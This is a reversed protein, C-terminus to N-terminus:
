KLNKRKEEWLMLGLSLLITCTAALGFSGPFFRELLFGGILPGVIKSISGLSDAVGMIEGYAQQKAQKSFHSILSPRLASSGFAFLIVTLTVMWQQTVIMLSLMAVTILSAGLIRLKAESMMKLLRPLIILKIVISSAGIMAFLYGIDSAQM